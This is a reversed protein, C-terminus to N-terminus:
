KKQKDAKQLAKIEEKSLEYDSKLNKVPKLYLRTRERTHLGTLVMGNNKGDLLALSFSQDGGTENFPNFRVIGLKQIHYLDQDNVNALDKELRKIGRANEEQKKYIADLTKALSKGDSDKVVKGLRLVFWFLVLTDVLLWIAIIALVILNIYMDAEHKPCKLDKLGIMKVNHKFVTLM